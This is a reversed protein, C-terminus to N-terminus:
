AARRIPLHVLPIRVIQPPQSTPSSILGILVALSQLAVGIGRYEGAPGLELLLVGALLVAAGLMRPGNWNALPIAHLIRLCVNSARNCASGWPSAKPKRMSGSAPPLCDTDGLSDAVGQWLRPAAGLMRATGNEMLVLQAFLYGPVLLVVCHHPQLLPSIPLTMLMLAAADRLLMERDCLAPRWRFFYFAVGTLWLVKWCKAVQQVTAFELDLWGAADPLTRTSLIFHLWKQPAIVYAHFTLPFSPDGAAARLEQSWAMTLHATKSPGLLLAPLLLFSILLGVAMWASERFRRRYVLYPLFVISYLKLGVSAALLLGALWGRGQSMAYVGTLVLALYLLNCNFALLDWELYYRVSLFALLLALARRLPGRIELLELCVWNSVVFAILSLVLWLIASPAMGLSGLAARFLVSPLPYTFGAPYSGAALVETSFSYNLSYDALAGSAGTWWDTLTPAAAYVLGLIVCLHITVALARQCKEGCRGTM